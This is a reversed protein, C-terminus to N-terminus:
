ARRDALLLLLAGTVAAAAGLAAALGYGAFATGLVFCAAAVGDGALRQLAMLSSGTGPRDALLDQLYAIPLTLILAGGFAAPLILAWVWASGVLLPLLAVHCCYIATGGLILANRPLRASIMPIALMFPVELGAVFGVYLAVDAPGRGAVPVMVLSVLVIYLTNAGSVAGLALVRGLLHPRALERLAAAFSLGSRPDQWVTTGDQPWHRATLWLMLGAMALCVPFIALVPAGSAFALSWLPLVAVFPLAFLARLTSLVADRAAEPHASAALRALAFLQTFITSSLPLLIAYCLVFSVPGPRLAMLALGAVLLAMAALAIGRRNATQDARIGAGVSSAVSLLSSVVLVAAYGHDGLGFQTVALVSAYPGLSCVVAGYLVMLAAATRLSRDALITRFAALPSM